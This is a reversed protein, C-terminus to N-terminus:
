SRIEFRDLDHAEFEKWYEAEIEWKAKMIDHEDMAAIEEQVHHRAFDRAALHRGLLEWFTYEEYEGLDEMPQDLTEESAALTGDYEEVIHGMGFEDAQGLLHHELADLRASEEKYQKDVMDGLVGYVTGAVQLANVLTKYQEQTFEILPM